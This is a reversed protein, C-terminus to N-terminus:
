KVFEFPLENEQGSTISSLNYYVVGTIKWKATNSELSSWLQPTNGTNKLIIKDKLLISNKGLLTYYNNGFEVMGGARSGIQGGSIQKEDSSGTEFIQYDIVQVIMSTPNPNKINFKIEITADRENVELITVDEVEISIPQIQQRTKPSVEKTEESIQNVPSPGSLLIIGLIAALGLVAIGVFIKQNVLNVGERSM